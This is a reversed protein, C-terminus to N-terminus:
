RFYAPVKAITDACWLDWIDPPIVDTTQHVHLIIYKIGNLEGKFM